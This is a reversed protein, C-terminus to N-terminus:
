RLQLHLVTSTEGSDLTPTQEGFQEGRESSRSRQPPATATASIHKTVGHSTRLDVLVVTLLFAVLWVPCTVARRHDGSRPLTDLPSVIALYRKTSTVTLIFISIYMTLLDLSFLFRCDLDGFHVDWVFYTCVVFPITPLYLLDALALTVIYMCLSITVVVLTYINGVLGVMCMTALLCCLFSTVLLDSASEASVVPQTTANKPHCPVWVCTSLEM